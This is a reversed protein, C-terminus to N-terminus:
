WTASINLGVYDNVVIPTFTFGKYPKTFYYSTLIGIAAGAAVDIFEHKDADVRSWAVFTAGLYAPISYKFGYRQHIFTAGQFTVSTHGSPFADDGSGDPRQKDVAYKLGETLVVTSLISQYFQWRGDSDDMYFTAAFASAPIIYKLADGVKESRGADHNQAFSSTSIFFLVSLFYVKSTLKNM